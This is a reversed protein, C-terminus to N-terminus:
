DMELLERAEEAPIGKQILKQLATSLKDEAQRKEAEAKKQLSLATTAKFKYERIAAETEAMLEDEFNMMEQVEPDAVAKHLQRLIKQILENDMGEIELLHQDESSILSQDFVSFVKELQSASQGVQTAKPIQIFYADHSLSEIFPHPEFESPQSPNAPNQYIRKTHIAIPYRDDLNYGLIYIVVIPLSAKTTYGEPLSVEDVSQYQKGLYNRFRTIDDSIKAKQIEILINQLKGHTNLVRAKFDLRYLTIPKTPRKKGEISHETASFTLEQIDLGTIATIIGKAIDLDEMLHRFAVDYIPNIIKM